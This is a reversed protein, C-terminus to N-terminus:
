EGANIEQRSTSAPLTRLPDIGGGCVRESVPRETRFRGLRPRATIREILLLVLPGHTRLFTGRPGAVSNGVIQQPLERNPSRKHLRVAQAM